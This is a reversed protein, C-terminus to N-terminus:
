VCVFLGQLWCGCMVFWVGINVLDILVDDFIFVGVLVFLSVFYVFVVDCECLLLLKLFLQMVLNQCSGDVFVVFQVFLYVVNVGVFCLFGVVVNGEGQSGYCGICVVVGM